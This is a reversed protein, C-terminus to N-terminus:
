AGLAGRIQDVLHDASAHGKQLVQSVRQNLRRLEEVTLEMATLVIVPIDRWREQSRLADLVEFGDMEPMMLDLLIVDPSHTALLDLARRGHEAEVARWGRNELLRRLITRTEVDDEVILVEGDSASYRRLMEVLRSRQIPKTLYDTAGLAYGRQREAVISLMVVPISSIEPDSKLRTLVQWGDVDPMMVDLTIVDPRLRRALRVGESGGIARVVEFEAAPLFREVLEAVQADDDICLVLYRSRQGPEIVEEVSTEQDLGLGEAPAEEDEAHSSLRAPLRMTFTSGVEPTSEVTVDGGMMQCFQYTIALGLGTGGYRRTTSQDAQTFSDFLHELRDEPIGIGTDQVEFIIWPGRPDFERWARVTVAGEETFKCANSVLNLLAQRLKMKDTHMAGVDEHVILELRNSRKAALGELTACVGEVLRGIHFTEPFLEMKGAEIKSVDLIDNIVHLLHDAATHIKDIDAALHEAGEIEVADERVLEAYGIIANLPTRLEHSMNALFTSKSRSAELAEDRAQRLAENLRRLEGEIRRAASVDRFVFVCGTVEGREILPNFVCSVALHSGDKRVLVSQEFRLALRDRISTWLLEFVDPSNEHSSSLKFRGLLREGILEEQGLSLYRAAVRNISVCRGSADLTCVGDSLAKFVSRLRDQGAGKAALLEDREREIDEFQAHLAELLEPDVQQGRRASGRARARPSPAM